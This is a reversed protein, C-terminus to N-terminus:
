EHEISETDLVHRLIEPWSKTHRAIRERGLQVLQSQYNQNDRVRLIGNVISKVDFPDVYCAAPGCIEHAFDLDSAIVPLGFHMAELHAAGVTELLTPFILADMSRYYHGLEEKTVHGLLVIQNGLGLRKIECQMAVTASNEGAGVTFFCATNALEKRFSAFVDILIEFNKHPYYGSCYFLRFVGTYAKLRNQVERIDSTPEPISFGLPCLSISELPVGFTEHARRRMVETQCYLRDCYKLTRGVARKVAVLKAIRLVQKWHLKLQKTPYNVLHADRLLISQRCPPNYMGVNGLCWIWEPSFHRVHKDMVNPEWFFRRRWSEIVPVELLEIGTDKARAGWGIATPAVVLYDHMPAVEPLVEFIKQSSVAAGTNINQALLAIRM